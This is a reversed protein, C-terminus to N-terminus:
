TYRAREFVVDSFVAALRRMACMKEGGPLATPPGMDTKNVDVIYIRGDEHHRLVDLGGFDLGMEHSFIQIRQIEDETLVDQAERMVVRRNANSFRDAEARMKLYVFPIRGGVVPTRIDVYDRGDVSNQILKQYVKGPEAAEIPCAIVEGDHVGNGESKQVALGRYTTPDVSLSYGFVKEFVDAVRSKRIDRCAGNLVTRGLSIAPSVADVLPRDQFQFILDADLPDDVIQVNALRCVPWIAYYSNPRQPYFAIKATPRVGRAIRTACLAQVEAVFAAARAADMLASRTLPIRTGSPKAVVYGGDFQLDSLFTM